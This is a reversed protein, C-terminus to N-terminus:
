RSREKGLLDARVSRDEKGEIRQFISLSAERYTKRSFKWSLSEQELSPPVSLIAMYLPWGHETGIPVPEGVLSGAVVAMDLLRSKKLLSCGLKEADRLRREFKPLDRKHFILTLRITGEPDNYGRCGLDDVEDDFSINTGPFVKGRRAKCHVTIAADEADTFAFLLEAVRDCAKSLRAFEKERTVAVGGGDV